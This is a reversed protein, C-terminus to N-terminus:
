GWTVALNCYTILQRRVDDSVVPAAFGSLAREVRAEFGEPPALVPV